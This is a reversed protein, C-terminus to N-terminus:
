KTSDGNGGTSTRYGNDSGASPCGSRGAESWNKAREPKSNKPVCGSESRAERQSLHGDCTGFYGGGGRDPDQAPASSGRGAGIHTENIMNIEQQACCANFGDCSILRFECRGTSLNHYPRRCLCGDRRPQLHDRGQPREGSRRDLGQNRWGLLDRLSCNIERVYLAPRATQGTASPM